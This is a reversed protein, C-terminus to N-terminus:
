AVDGAGGAVVSGDGMCEYEEMLRARRDGSPKASMAEGFSSRPANFGEGISVSLVRIFVKRSFQRPV